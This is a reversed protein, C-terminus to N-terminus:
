KHLNGRFNFLKLLPALLKYKRVGTLVNPLTYPEKNETNEELENHYKRIASLISYVRLKYVKLNQGHKDSVIVIEEDDFIGVQYHYRTGFDYNVHVKHDM